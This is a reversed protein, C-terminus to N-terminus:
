PRVKADALTARGIDQKMITEAAELVTSTGAAERMAECADEHGYYSVHGNETRGLSMENDGVWKSADDAFSGDTFFGTAVIPIPLDRIPVSKVRQRAADTIGSVKVYKVKVPRSSNGGMAVYIVGKEGRKELFSKPGVDLEDDLKAGAWNAGLAGQAMATMWASLSHQYQIQRAAAISTKTAAALERAKGLKKGLVAQRQHTPVALVAKHDATTADTIAEEARGQGNALSQEQSAFFTAKSTDSGTAALRDMITPVAEKFGDDLATQIAGNLDSRQALKGAIVNTIGGSAAGLATIALTKLIQEAISPSDAENLNGLVERVAIGRLESINRRYTALNAFAADLDSFDIAEPAQNSNDLSKPPERKGVFEPPMEIHNKKGPAKPERRQVKDQTGSAAGAGNVFQDLLSEASRGQVVLSAVADAHQEYRDGVEGVGGLLQVGHRQQIVHAAEHAATFLSPASGFAVDNGTAYAEAGVAETAEAARGGVHARVGSVDHRGFSAQIADRHPLAQSPGTVGHAARRQLLGSEIPEDPATMQAARSRRGPATGEDASSGLSSQYERAHDREFSM